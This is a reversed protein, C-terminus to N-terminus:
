AALVIDSDAFVYAEGKITFTGPVGESFDVDTIRCILFTATSDTTGGFNTREATYVLKVCFVESGGASTALTSTAGAWTGLKFCANGPDGVMSIAHCTFSFPIPRNKEKRMSYPRGRDMFVVTDMVGQNMGTFSFNGEEYTVTVTLPTGTADSIVLQGDTPVIPVAAFAM